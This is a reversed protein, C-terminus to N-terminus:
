AYREPDRRKMKTDVHHLVIVDNTRRAEKELQKMLDPMVKKFLRITKSKTNNANNANTKM